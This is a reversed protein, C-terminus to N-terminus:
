DANSNGYTKTGPPMYSSDKIKNPLQVYLFNIGMESLQRDFEDVIEAYETMDREPLSYMIQGNSLKYVDYEDGSGRVITVGLCRQFLGNFNIWDNKNQFNDNLSSEVETKCHLYNGTKVIEKITDRCNWTTGIGIFFILFLFFVSIIIRFTKSM